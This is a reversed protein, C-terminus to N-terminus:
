NITNKDIYNITRYLDEPNCEVSYFFRNVLFVDFSKNAVVDMNLYAGGYTKLIWM